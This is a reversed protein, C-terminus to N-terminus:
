MEPHNPKWGPRLTAPTNNKCATPPIADLQDAPTSGYKAM